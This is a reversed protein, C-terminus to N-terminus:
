GPLWQRPGEDDPIAPSRSSQARRRGQERSAGPSLFAGAFQVRLLGTAGGDSRPEIGRMEVIGRPELPFGRCPPPRPVCTSCRYSTLASRARRCAAAAPAAGPSPTDAGGVGEPSLGAGVGEPRLGVGAGAGCPRAPACPAGSSGTSPPGLVWCMLVVLVRACDSLCRGDICAVRLGVFFM